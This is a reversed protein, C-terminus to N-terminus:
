LKAEPDIQPGYGARYNKESELRDFLYDLTAYIRKLTLFTPVSRIERLALWEEETLPNFITM